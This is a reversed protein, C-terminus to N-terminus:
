HFSDFSRATVQGGARHVLEGVQQVDHAGLCVTGGKILDARFAVTTSSPPRELRGVRCLREISDMQLQGPELSEFPSADLFPSLLCRLHM